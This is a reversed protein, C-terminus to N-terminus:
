NRVLWNLQVTGKSFTMGRLKTNLIDMYLCLTLFTQQVMASPTHNDSLELRPSLFAKCTLVYLNDQM